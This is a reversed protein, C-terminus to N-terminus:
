RDEVLVFLQMGGPSTIARHPIADFRAKEREYFELPLLIAIPHQRELLPFADEKSALMHVRRQLYFEIAPLRRDDCYGVYLERGVLEPRITDFFPRWSREADIRPIAIWIAITASAISAVFCRAVFDTSTWRGRSRWVLMALAVLEIGGVVALWTSQLLVGGVIFAVGLTLAFLVVNGALIWPGRSCDSGKKSGAHMAVGLSLGLPFLIPLLYESQRSSSLTLALVIWVIALQLFLRFDDVRPARFLHWLAAAHAITWPLAIVGLKSLFTLASEDKHVTYADNLPRLGLAHTDHFTFYRGVTNDVFVIRLYESGGREYLAWIWPGVLIVFAIASTLVMGALRGFQRRLLLLTAVPPVVILFTFFNKAYFSAVLAICFPVDAHWRRVESAEGSEEDDLTRVFLACCLSAFFLAASDTCARHAIEYFTFTTASVWTVTWAVDRGFRRRSIWHLLALTALGFLASPLRVLGASVRGAVACATASLAYALPPKELYPMGNIEPVVVDHTELMEWTVGAVAQETPPWLEHDFVGVALYFAILLAVVSWSALRARAVPPAVVCVEAPAPLM